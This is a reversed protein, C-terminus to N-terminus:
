KPTQLVALIHQGCSLAGPEDALALEVRSLFERLEPEEPQLSPLLGAASAAVITGHRSLLAELESWRFCKM